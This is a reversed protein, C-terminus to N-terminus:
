RAAEGQEAEWHALSVPRCRREFEHCARHLPFNFPLAGPYYRQAEDFPVPTHCVCCVFFLAMQVPSEMRKM